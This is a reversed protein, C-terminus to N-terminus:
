DSEGTAPLYWYSLGFLMWFKLILCLSVWSTRASDARAACLLKAAAETKFVFSTYKASHRGGCWESGVLM